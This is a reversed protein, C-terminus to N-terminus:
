RTVVGDLVGRNLAKVLLEGKEKRRRSQLERYDRLEKMSLKALQKETLAKYQKDM